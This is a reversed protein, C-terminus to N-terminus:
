FNGLTFLGKILTEFVWFWLKFSWALKLMECFWTESWNQITFDRESRIGIIKATECSIVWFNGLKESLLLSFTMWPNWSERLHYFTFEREREIWMFKSWSGDSCLMSGGERLVNKWTSAQKDVRHSMKIKKSFNRTKNLCVRWRCKRCRFYTFYNLNESLSISWCSTSFM